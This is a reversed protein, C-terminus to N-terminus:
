VTIPHGLEDPYLLYDPQKNRQLKIEQLVRRYFVRTEYNSWLYIFLLLLLVGMWIGLIVEQDKTM